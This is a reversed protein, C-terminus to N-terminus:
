DTSLFIVKNSFGKLGILYAKIPLSEDAIHPLPPVLVSDMFNHLCLNVEKKHSMLLGSPPLGQCIKM